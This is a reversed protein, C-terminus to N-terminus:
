INARGLSRFILNHYMMSHFNGDGVHGMILSVLKGEGEITANIREQDRKYQEILGALNSLPVCVDTSIVDSGPYMAVLSFVLSKRIDWLQEGEKPTRAIRLNTGGSSKLVSTLLKQQEPITKSSGSLKFFIHPKLPFPPIDKNLSNNMGAVCTSDLLEVCRPEVGKKM